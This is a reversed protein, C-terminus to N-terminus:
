EKGNEVFIAGMQRWHYLEDCTKVFKSDVFRCIYKVFCEKYPKELLYFNEISILISLLHRYLRKNSCFVVQLGTSYKFVKIKIMTLFQRNTTMSLSKPKCIYLFSFNLEELLQTNGFKWDDIHQYCLDLGNFYNCIEEYCFPILFNNKTSNNSHCLFINKNNSKDIKRM